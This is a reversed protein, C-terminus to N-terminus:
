KVLRGGFKVTRKRAIHKAIKAPNGTTVVYATNVIGLTRYAARIASALGGKSKRKRGM